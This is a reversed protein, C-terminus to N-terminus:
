HADRKLVVACVLFVAGILVYKKIPHQPQTQANPHQNNIHKKDM